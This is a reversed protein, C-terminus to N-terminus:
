RQKKSAIFGAKIMSDVTDRITDDLPRYTMDLTQRSKSADFRIETTMVRYEFESPKIAHGIMASCAAVGLCAWRAWWPGGAGLWLGAAAAGSLASVAPPLYTALQVM